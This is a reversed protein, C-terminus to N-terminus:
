SNRKKRMATGTRHTIYVPTNSAPSDGRGSVAYVTITYDTGPKLGTITAYTQTGPISFEQLAEGSTGYTIRYNKVTVSPADWRITIS